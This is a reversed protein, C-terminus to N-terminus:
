AEKVGTFGKVPHVIQFKECLQMDSAKRAMQHIQDDPPALCSNVTFHLLETDLLKGAASPILYPLM